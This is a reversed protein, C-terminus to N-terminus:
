EGRRQYQHEGNPDEYHQRESVFDTHKGVTRIGYVRETGLPCITFEAKRKIRTPRPFSFLGLWANFEAFSEASGYEVSRSSRHIQIYFSLPIETLMTRAPLPFFFSFVSFSVQM